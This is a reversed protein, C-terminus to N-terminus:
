QMNVRYNMGRNNDWTWQGSSNQVYLAYEFTFPTFGCGMQQCGGGFLYVEWAEDQGGYPNNVNAVWRANQWTATAWGDDTYVIGATHGWAVPWVGFNARISTYIWTSYKWYESRQDWGKSWISDAQAGSAALYTMGAVVAAMIMKRM